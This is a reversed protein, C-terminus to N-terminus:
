AMSHFVRQVDDDEFAYAVDPTMADQVPTANPDRSGSNGDTLLCYHLEVGARAWRAVTGGAMFEIDDPHAMVALVRQPNPPFAAM